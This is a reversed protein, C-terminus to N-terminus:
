REHAEIKTGTKPSEEAWKANDSYYKKLKEGKLNRIEKYQRDRIERVMSVTNIKKM